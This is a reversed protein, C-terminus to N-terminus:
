SREALIQRALAEATLREVRDVVQPYANASLTAVLRRIAGDVKIEARIVLQDYPEFEAPDEFSIVTEVSRAIEVRDILDDLKETVRVEPIPSKADLRYRLRARARPDIEARRALLEDPNM